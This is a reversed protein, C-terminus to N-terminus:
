PIAGNVHSIICLAWMFSPSPWLIARVNLCYQWYLNKWAHLTMPDQSVDDLLFIVKKKSLQCMM